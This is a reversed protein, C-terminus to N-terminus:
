RKADLDSSTSSSRPPTEAHLAAHAIATVAAVFVGIGAFIYGITFVKGLATKPTLDGYGVTAITVVSFYVSDLFSWGEVLWYFVTAILILSMALTLAGQAEPERVATLLARFTRRINAFLRM